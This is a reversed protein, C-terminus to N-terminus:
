KRAENFPVPKGSALDKPELVIMKSMGRFQDLDTGTIGRYQVALTRGRKWEGGKDFEIEGVVTSFKTKSLYEALKADDISKAGEIAQGLVQVYAYGWPAMYYGLPDVGEKEAREQYKKLMAMVGPYQMKEAPLWFDYNIIGNLAPGLKTKFVTAQLGVMGGGFAMTKLDLEKAALVLGVSDLPYSGAFVVDPNTAQIARIIPGYDTTSPPYSKDYVVKLGHKKSLERAADAAKKSFEADAAVIAITKPKPNLSMVTEFFPISTATEPNPGAPIMAFYRDYKFKSNVALGFLGLFTKKRQIAVPLAPALQNTAYGGMIIDVKDIDLLKTYIGPVTSPNSQDDYYILKVPRGILGGKANVEEEWLRMALLASKGNPGLPGTLSMGLGIKIPEAAQATGAVLAGALAIAATATRRM